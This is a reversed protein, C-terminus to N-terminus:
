PKAIFIPSGFTTSTGNINVLRIQDFLITSGSKMQNELSRLETRLYRSNSKFTQKTGDPAIIVMNFNIVQWYKSESELCHAQSLNARAGAIDRISVTPSKPKLAFLYRQDLTINGSRMEITFRGEFLPTIILQDGAREISANESYFNINKLNQFGTKDLTVTFPESLYATIEQETELFRLAPKIVKIKQTIFENEVNAELNYEGAATPTWNIQFHRGKYNPTMSMNNISVTPAISDRSFFDFTIKEGVYYVSKFGQLLSSDKNSNVKVMGGQPLEWKLYKLGESLIATKLQNLVSPVAANPLEIFLTNKIKPNLEFVAPDIGLQPILEKQYNVPFCAIFDVLSQNLPTYVANQNLVNKAFKQEKLKEGKVKNVLAFTDYSQILSDLLSIALGAKNKLLVEDPVSAKQANFHVLLKDNFGAQTKQLASFHHLFEGSTSLFFFVIFVLYLFTLKKFNLAKSKKIRITGAM